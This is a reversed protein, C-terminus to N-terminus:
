FYYRINALSTGRSVATYYLRRDTAIRRYENINLKGTITDGQAKHITLAYAMIFKKNIDDVTFVGDNDELNFTGAVADFNKVIHTTNKILKNKTDMAYVILPLGDYIITTQRYKEDASNDWAVLLSNGEGKQSAYYQNLATNIFMRRQNTYVLNTGSLYDSIRAMRIPRPTNPTEDKINTLYNYLERDYRCKDTLELSAYMYDCILMITPHNFYGEKREDPEIPPLQIEEGCLLFVVDPFYRKVYYIHKWLEHGIMSIEDICIVKVGGMRRRLQQLNIKFSADIGFFKNITQGNINNSAKNTFAIRRVAKEGFHESVKGIVFSKGTGARSDLQLSKGSELRAIIKDYDDSTTINEDKELYRRHYVFDVYRNDDMDIYRIPPTDIKYGGVENSPTLTQGINEMMIFDTKRYLLHEYGGTSKILNHLKINAWDLIQIYMPLNNSLLIHRQVRGWCHLAPNEEDADLTRFIFDTEWKNTKKFYDDWVREVDSDCTLTTSKKTTRGLMGSISNIMKKLLGEMGDSIDDCNAKRFEEDLTPDTALIKDIIEKLLLKGEREGQIFYKPEFKIGETHAVILSTSSYWNSQHLLTLDDTEVFWLGFRQPNFKSVFEITGNFGITMFDDMPNEMVDRYAKNLDLCIVNNIDIQSPLISQRSELTDEEDTPPDGMDEEEEDDGYDRYLGIHTRNKVGAQTLADMVENNLYSMPMNELSPILLSPASQGSYEKGQSIVYAELVKDEPTSIYTTDGLKFPALQPGVLRAKQPYQQTKVKRQTKLLFGIGDDDGYTCFSLTPTPTKGGVAPNAQSELTKNSKAMVGSSAPIHVVSKIKTIDTIPYLHNNKIEIVLPSAKKTHGVLENRDHMILQGNHLIYVPLNANKCFLMINELTYGNDNPNNDYQLEGRADHTSYYQIVEINKVKKKIKSRICDLYKYMLWDPVCMGNNNCWTTNTILGDLEIAGAEKIPATMISNVPTRVRVRRIDTDVLEVSLTPSENTIQGYADQKLQNLEKLTMMPVIVTKAVFKSGKGDKEEAMFRLTGTYRVISTTKVVPKSEITANYLGGFYKYARAEIVTKFNPTKPSPFTQVPSAIYAKVLDKTKSVGLHQRIARKAVRGIRNINIKRPPMKYKPLIKNKAFNAM